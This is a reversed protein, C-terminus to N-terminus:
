EVEEEQPTTQFAELVAAITNVPTYSGGSQVGIIEGFINVLPSGSLVNGLSITTEITALVSITEEVVEGDEESSIVVDDFELGSIIGTAVQTRNKGGLAMVTQGLKLASHDSLTVPVFEEHTNEEGEVAEKPEIQLLAVSDNEDQSVVRATHTGSQTAVVYVGDQAVLLGDTVLFGDASVLFGMGLFVGEAGDEGGAQNIRVLSASNKEISDTILDEEKVVVTVEKTIVSAGQQTKDPVVREVTREVVRNITQTVAPPAQDLLTVTTIGTAISTIFSVLLTLLIIQGKTLQELDM